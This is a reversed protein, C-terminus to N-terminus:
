QIRLIDPLHEGTEQGWQERSALRQGGHNYDAGCGMCTNTFGELDVKEGCGCLGIAPEIWSTVHKRVGDRRIHEGRENEGVICRAFSTVGVPELSDVDVHGQEDCPFSYGCGPAEVITYHLQHFVHSRRKQEQLIRM